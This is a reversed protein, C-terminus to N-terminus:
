SQQRRGAILYDLSFRDGERPMVLLFLLLALRPIVHEHFPYLPEHLLHGFTVIVLVVGLALLAEYVRWGTLLLAGGILEVFPIALGVAWLSWTPLFTDRFPLFWKQVHGVPTLTFVKYIGAMFFILGLVLRVFLCAFARRRATLVLDPTVM